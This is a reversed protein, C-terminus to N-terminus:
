QSLVVREASEFVEAGAVVVRDGVDLGELIEVRSVSVAGIRVPTKQAVGERVRYAHARGEDFSSGREVTLVNDRNEILVRVSLRQNQRLGQPKDEAFRVRAIVQGDVVEPSVGGVTGSWARGNGTLEATMGAALDRAFSEPVQVEVELHSLDIVSLLPADRAVSAHDNVQVQGIQGDAPARLELAAVQRALDAVMLQQRELLSQRSRVEFTGQERRTALARETHELHFSAKELADEVRRLQLEAYAGAEYAKRTRDFERQASTRDVKAQAFAENADAALHEAELTARRLDLQLSQLTAREQSLRAALDPSDIVAVVQDREVADGPKVRLIVAGASPAYLMPSGAAVVKGDAAFDRVFAGREVTAISLRSAAVSARVGAVKALVPALAVAIGIALLSVLLLVVHRRWLPRADLARDQAQTERFASAVSTSNSQM